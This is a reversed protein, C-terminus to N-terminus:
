SSTPLTRKYLVNTSNFQITRLYQYNPGLIRNNFGSKKDNTEFRKPQNITTFGNHQNGYKLGRGLEDRM